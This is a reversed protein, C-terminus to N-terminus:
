HKTDSGSFMADFAEPSLVKLKQKPPKHLTVLKGSQDETKSSGFITELFEFRGEQAIVLANVDMDLSQQETWGMWGLAFRTLGDYYEVITM